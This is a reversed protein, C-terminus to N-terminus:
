TMTLLRRDSRAHGRPVRYNNWRLGGGRSGIFLPTDADPMGRRARHERLLLALQPGVIIGRRHGGKPTPNRVLLGEVEVVPERVWVRGAALDVDRVLLRAVESRRGGTGLLLEFILRDEGAGLRAAMLDLFTFDPVVIARVRDEVADVDLSVGAVPNAQLVATDMLWNLFARTMVRHTRITNPARGAAEMARLVSTVDDQILTHPM